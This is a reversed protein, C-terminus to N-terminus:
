SSFMSSINFSNSSSSTCWGTASFHPINALGVCSIKQGDHLKKFFDRMREIVNVRVASASIFCRGSHVTHHLAVVVHQQLPHVLHQVKIECGSFCQVNFDRRLLCSSLGSFVLPFAQAYISCSTLTTQIHFLDFNSPM